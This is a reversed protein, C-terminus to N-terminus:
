VLQSEAPSSGAHESIRKSTVSVATLCSTDDDAAFVVVPRSRMITGHWILSVVPLSGLSESWVGSIM